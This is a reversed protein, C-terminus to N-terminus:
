GRLYSSCRTGEAMNGFVINGLLTFLRGGHIICYCSWCYTNSVVRFSSTSGQPSRGNNGSFTRWLKWCSSINHCTNPRPILPRNDITDQTLLTKEKSTRIPNKRQSNTFLQPM